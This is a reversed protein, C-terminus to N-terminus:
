GDCSKIKDSLTNIKKNQESTKAEVRDEVTRLRRDLEEINNMCKDIFKLDFKFKGM